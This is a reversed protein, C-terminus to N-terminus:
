GVSFHNLCGFMWNETREIDFNDMNHVCQVCAFLISKMLQCAGIKGWFEVVSNYNVTTIIVISGM